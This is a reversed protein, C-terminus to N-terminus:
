DLSSTQHLFFSPLFECTTNGWLYVQYRPLTLDYGAVKVPTKFRCWVREGDQEFLTDELVANTRVAAKKADELSFHEVAALDQTRICAFISTEKLMKPDETFGLAVYDGTVPAKGGMTVELSRNDNTLAYTLSMDCRSARDCKTRDRSLTMCSKSDGCGTMSVPFEDVPFGSGVNLNYWYENGVVFTGRLLVEIEPLDPPMWTFWLDKKPTFDENTLANPPGGECKVPRLGKSWEVFYGLPAAGADGGVDRFMLMLANVSVSSAMTVRFPTTRRIKESFKFSNSLPFGRDSLKLGADSGDGTTNAPCGPLPCLTECADKTFGNKYGYVAAFLCLIVGVSPCRTPM